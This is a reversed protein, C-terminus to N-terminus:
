VVDRTKYRITQAEEDGVGTTGRREEREGSTLM